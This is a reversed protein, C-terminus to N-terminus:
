TIGLRKRLEANETRLKEGLLRRLRRNEEELQIFEAFEDDVAVPSSSTGSAPLAVAKKWTYYTQDSISVAGVADKLTAGGAVAAEVLRIKELKEADSLRRLRPKDSEQVKGAVKGSAAKKPSSRKGRATVTTKEVEPKTETSDSQTPVDDEIM